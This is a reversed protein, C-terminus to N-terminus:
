AQRSRLADIVAPGLKSEAYQVFAEVSKLPSISRHFQVVSGYRLPVEFLRHRWLHMQGWKSVVRGSCCKGAHNPIGNSSYVVVDGEAVQEPFVTSLLNSALFTVFEANPYIARNFNAIRVVIPPPDVLDFAHQFCTYKWTHSDSPLAEIELRIDHDFQPLLAAIAPVQQGVSDGTFVCTIADLKARLERNDHEVDLHFM